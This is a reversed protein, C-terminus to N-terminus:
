LLVPVAAYTSASRMAFPDSRAACNTESLLVFALDPTPGARVAAKQSLIGILEEEPGFRLAEDRVITSLHEKQEDTASM